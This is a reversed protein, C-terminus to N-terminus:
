NFKNMGKYENFLLLNNHLALGTWGHSLITFNCNIYINLTFGRAEVKMNRHKYPDQHAHCPPTRNFSIYSFGIYGDFGLTEQALSATIIERHWDYM